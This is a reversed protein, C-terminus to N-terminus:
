HKGVPLVSQVYGTTANFSVVAQKTGAPLTVTNVAAGFGNMFKMSTLADASVRYVLNSQGPSVPDATVVVSSPTTATFMLFSAFADGNLGYIFGAAGTGFVYGGTSSVYPQPVPYPEWAADLLSEDGYGLLLVRNHGDPNITDYENTSGDDKLFLITSGDPSWVPKTDAISGGDAALTGGANAAPFTLVHLDVPAGSSRSYAFLTGLPSVAVSDANAASPAFVLTPSSGNANMRWIEQFGSISNIRLFVIQSGDPTWCAHSDNATNDSLPTQSGGSATMSYIQMRSGNWHTYAIHFNDPSWAPDYNNPSAISHANSGDANCVWIGPGTSLDREAAIRGDRSWTPSGNVSFMGPVQHVNATNSMVYLQSIAGGREFAIRSNSLTPTPSYTIKTFASGFVSTVTAAGSSTTTVQPKGGAARTLFPGFASDQGGANNAGAGAGGGGGCGAVLLVIFSISWPTARM